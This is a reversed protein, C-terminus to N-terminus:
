LDRWQWVENVAVDFGRELRAMTAELAVGDKQLLCTKVHDATVAVETLGIQKAVLAIRRASQRMPVFDRAALGRQLQDLRMAIDELMRCVIEEAVHHERGAFLAHLPQKDFTIQHPCCLTVIADSAKALPAPFQTVNKM